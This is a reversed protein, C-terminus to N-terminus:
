RSNLQTGLGLGGSDPGFQPAAGSRRLTTGIGIGIGPSQGFDRPGDLARSLPICKLSNGVKQFQLFKEPLWQKLDECAAKYGATRAEVKAAQVCEATYLNNQPVCKDAVEAQASSALIGFALIYISNWRM